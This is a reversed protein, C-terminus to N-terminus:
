TVKFSATPTLVQNSNKDTVKMRITYKGPSFNTLPLLKEITVQTASAGPLAQLEETYEFIKENSGDKIVEYEITGNPKQTKEDPSFNYLTLYVGLKEQRTFTESIRPRVKSGGIVFQGAGINKTPVKEIIDALIVSSMGLKEDDYRPVNLAMEYNNMNGGVVDKVVVNLRYNGPPLPVGNQYLAQGKSAEAIFEAPTEIVVPHEFVNVVRRSMSTIRAYINVMAKAVPGDNKFQLDKKEMQITIYSM